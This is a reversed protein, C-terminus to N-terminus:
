ASTISELKDKIENVASLLPNEAKQKAQEREERRSKGPDAGASGRSLREAAAAPSLPRSNRRALDAAALRETNGGRSKSQRKNFDALALKDTNGGSSGRLEGKAQDAGSRRSARAAASAAADLLGRRPKAAREELTIRKEAAKAADDAALGQQEMLDLKLAEVKAQRELTAVLKTQKNARAEL